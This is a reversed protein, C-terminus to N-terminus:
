YTAARLPLSLVRRHGEDEVEITGALCIADSRLRERLVLGAASMAESLAEVDDRCTRGVIDVEEFADSCINFFYRPM